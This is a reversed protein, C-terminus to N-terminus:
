PNFIFKGIDVGDFGYNQMFTILSDFFTNQAANSRALRSFTQQSPGPDNFAWGGIAIWVELNPDRQKLNTVDAYLAGTTSDMPAIRFTNPDILAFAFNIHTYYGLPIESPSM